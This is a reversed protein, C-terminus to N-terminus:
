YEIHLKDNTKKIKKSKAKLYELAYQYTKLLKPLNPEEFDEDRIEGFILEDSIFILLM